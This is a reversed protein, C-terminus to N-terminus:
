RTDHSGLLWQTFMDLSAAKCDGRHDKSINLIAYDKFHLSLSVDEWQHAVEDIVQIAHASIGSSDNMEMFHLQHLEPAKQLALLRQRKM